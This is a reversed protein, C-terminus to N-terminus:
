MEIEITGKDSFYYIKDGIDLPSCLYILKVATDFDIKNNKYNDLIKGIDIFTGADNQIIYEIPIDEGLVRIADINNALLNGIDTLEFIERNSYGASKLLDALSIDLEKSLKYLIDTMPKKAVGSEIKAIYSNDVEIRRALERQSIGKKERSVSIISGLSKSM